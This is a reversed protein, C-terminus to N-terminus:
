HLTVLFHALAEPLPVEFEVRVGALDTFGLKAAHLFLRGLEKDRKRNCKKQFYIEDGVIPHNYALLHARIQHTRGTHITVRLLTFRAFKKEVIFETLAERGDQQNAIGSLTLPQASPRAAMRGSEGRALLFNIIDHDKAPRGHVLTLYEKQVTRDQFQRKLHDFMTQTKAIVMLGSASKDLRHVIGPRDPSEGVAKIEPYNIVLWDVLTDTEGKITPHVLLGSPKNIVLYDPTDAIIPISVNM